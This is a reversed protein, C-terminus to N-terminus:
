LDSLVNAFTQAGGYILDLSPQFSSTVRWRVEPTPDALAPKAIALGTAALGLGAIFQRRGSSMFKQGHGLCGGKRRYLRDPALNRREDGCFFARTVFEPPKVAQPPRSTKKPGSTPARPQQRRGGQRRGDVGRWPILHCATTQGDPEWAVVLQPM